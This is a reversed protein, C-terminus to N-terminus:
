TSTLLGPWELTTDLHFPESFDLMIDLHFPEMFIPDMILPVTFGWTKLYPRM